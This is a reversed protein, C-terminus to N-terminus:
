SNPGIPRHHHSNEAAHRTEGSAEATAKLLLGNNTITGNVWGQVLSTPLTIEVWTGPSGTTVSFSGPPPVPGTPAAAAM